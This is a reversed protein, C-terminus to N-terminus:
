KGEIKLPYAGDRKFLHIINKQTVNTRELAIEILTGNPSLLLFSKEEIKWLNPCSEGLSNDPFQIQVWFHKVGHTLKKRQHKTSTTIKLVYICCLAQKTNNM